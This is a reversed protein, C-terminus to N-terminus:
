ALFRRWIWLGFLIFPIIMLIQNIRIDWRVDPLEHPPYRLPWQRGEIAEVLIDPTIPLRVVRRYPPKFFLRGFNSGEEGHHFYWRYGDLDVDFRAGFAEMFDSADDGDIGCIEFIDAAASAPLPADWFGQFWEALQLRADRM